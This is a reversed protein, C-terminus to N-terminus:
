HCWAAGGSFGLRAFRNLQSILSKGVRLSGCVTKRLTPGSADRYGGPGETGGNGSVRYGGRWERVDYLPLKWFRKPGLAWYYLGGEGGLQFVPRKGAQRFRSSTQEPPAQRHWQRAQTRRSVCHGPSKKTLAAGYRTRTKSRKPFQSKSCRRSRPSKTGLGRGGKSFPPRFSGHRKRM